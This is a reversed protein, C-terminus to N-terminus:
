IEPDSISPRAHRFRDAAKVLAIAMALGAAKVQADPSAPVVPAALEVPAEQAPVVAKM